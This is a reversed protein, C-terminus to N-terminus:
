RKSAVSPLRLVRDLAEELSLEEPWILPKLVEKATTLRFSKKPMEGLVQDLHLDVPHRCASSSSSFPSQMRKKAPPSSSSSANSAQVTEEEEEEVREEEEGEDDFDKLVIKGDGTIKGVIDVGCKERQGIARVFAIDAPDVQEVHYLSKNVVITNNNITTTTAHDFTTLTLSRVVRYLMPM